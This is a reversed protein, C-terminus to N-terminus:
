AFPVIDHCRLSLGCPLSGKWDPPARQGSDRGEEEEGREAEGRAPSAAHADHKHAADVARDGGGEGAAAAAATVLMPPRAQPLLQPLLQYEPAAQNAETQRATEMGESTQGNREPHSRLPSSLHRAAVLMDLAHQTAALGEEM